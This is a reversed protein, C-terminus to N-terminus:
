EKVSHKLGARALRILDTAIEAKLLTESAVTLHEDM